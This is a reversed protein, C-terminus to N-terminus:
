PKPAPEIAPPVTSSPLPVQTPPSVMQEQSNTPLPGKLLTSIRDGELYWFVIAVVALLPGGIYMAMKFGHITKDLDHIKGNVSTEISQIKDIVTHFMKDQQETDEILRDVKAELKGVAHIVFRIDSIPYLDRPTVGPFDEQGPVDAGEEHATDRPGRKTM